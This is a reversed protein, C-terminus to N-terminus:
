DRAEYAFSPLSALADTPWSRRLLGSAKSPAKRARGVQGNGLNGRGLQQRCQAVARGDSSLRFNAWVGGDVGDPNTVFAIALPRLNRDDIMGQDYLRPTQHNRSM